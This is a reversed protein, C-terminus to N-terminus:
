KTTTDADPIADLVSDEITGYKVSKAKDSDESDAIRM